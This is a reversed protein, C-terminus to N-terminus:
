YAPPSRHEVIVEEDLGWRDGYLRLREIVTRAIQDRDADTLVGKRGQIKMRCLAFCLSYYLQDGRTM